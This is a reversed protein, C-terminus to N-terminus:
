WNVLADPDAPKCHILLLRRVEHGCDAKHVEESTDPLLGIVTSGDLEATAGCVRCTAVSSCAVRGPMTPATVVTGAV